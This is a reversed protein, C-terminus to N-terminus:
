VEFLITLHNSSSIFGLKYIKRDVFLIITIQSKNQSKGLVKKKEKEAAAYLHTRKKRRPMDIYYKAEEM